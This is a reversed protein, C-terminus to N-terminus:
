IETILMKVLHVTVQMAFGLINIIRKLNDTPKDYEVVATTKRVQM